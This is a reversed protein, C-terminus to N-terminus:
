KGEVALIAATIGAERQTATVAEKRCSEYGGLMKSAILQTHMLETLEEKSLGDRPIVTTRVAVRQIQNITANLDHYAKAIRGKATMIMYGKGRVGILERQYLEFLLKKWRQVVGRYRPTGYTVIILTAIEKHSFLTSDEANKSVDLLKSVEVNTGVGKTSLVGKTKKAM